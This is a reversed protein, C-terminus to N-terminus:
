FFFFSSSFSVLWRKGEGRERKGPKCGSLMRSGSSAMGEFMLENPRLMKKEKCFTRDDPYPENKGLPEAPYARLVISCNIPTSIVASSSPATAAFTDLGVDLIINLLTPM